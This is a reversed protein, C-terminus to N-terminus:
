LRIPPARSEFAFFDAALGASVPAAAVVCTAMSGSSFDLPPQCLAATIQAFALCEGCAKDAAPLLNVLPALASTEPNSASQAAQVQLAGNRWHSCAHWWGMQQAGLLLLSLLFPLFLKPLRVTGSEITNACRGAIPNRPGAFISYKRIHVRVYLIGAGCRNVIVTAGDRGSRWAKPGSVHREAVGQLSGWAYCPHFRRM